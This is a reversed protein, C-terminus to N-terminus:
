AAKLRDRSNKFEWKGDAGPAMPGRDRTKPAPRHRRCMFAPATRRQQVIFQQILLFPTIVVPKLLQQNFFQQVLFRCGTLLAIVNVLGAASRWAASGLVVNARRAAKIHNM